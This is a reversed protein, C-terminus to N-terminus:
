AGNGGVAVAVIEFDFCTTLLVAEVVGGIRFGPNRYRFFGVAADQRRLHGATEYTGIYAKVGAAVSGAALDDGVEIEAVQDLDDAATVADVVERGMRGRAGNVLVPLNAM